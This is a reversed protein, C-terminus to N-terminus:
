PGPLPEHKQPLGHRFAKQGLDELLLVHWGEYRFSAYFEPAWQGIVPGLYRYVREEQVLAGQAFETVTQNTGKFFARSGDAFQLRFTPTPGYGGWVRNARVVTSGLAAQVKERIAPPITKWPQKDEVGTRSM